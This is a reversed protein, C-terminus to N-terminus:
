RARGLQRWQAGGVASCWARGKATIELHFFPRLVATTLTQIVLAGVSPSRTFTGHRPASARRHVFLARIATDPLAVGKLAGSCWAHPPGNKGERYFIRARTSEDKAPPASAPGAVSPSHSSGEAIVRGRDLGREALGLCNAGGVSRGRHLLATSPREVDHEPYRRQEDDPGDDVDPVDEEDYVELGHADALRTASRRSRLGDIVHVIRKSDLRIAVSRFPLLCVRFTVRSAERPIMRSKADLTIARSAVDLALRTTSDGTACRLAAGSALATTTPLAELSAPPGSTTELKRTSADLRIAVSM